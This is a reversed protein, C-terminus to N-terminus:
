GKLVTKEEEQFDLDNFPAQSSEDERVELAEDSQDQKKKSMNVEDKKKM